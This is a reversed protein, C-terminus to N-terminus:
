DNSRTEDSDIAADLGRMASRGISFVSGLAAVDVLHASLQSCPTEM